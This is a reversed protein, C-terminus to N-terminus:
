QQQLLNHVFRCVVPIGKEWVYVVCERRDAHGVTANHGEGQTQAPTVSPQSRCLYGFVLRANLSQRVIVYYRYVCCGPAYRRHTLKYRYIYGGLILGQFNNQASIAASTTLSSTYIPSYYRATFMIGVWFSNRAVGRAVAPNKQCGVVKKLPLRYLKSWIFM